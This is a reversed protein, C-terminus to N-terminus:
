LISSSTSYVFRKFIKGVRRPEIRHRIRKKPYKGVFPYFTGSQKGAKMFASYVSRLKRNGVTLIFRGSTTQYCKQKSFEYDRSNELPSSTIFVEPLNNRGWLNL